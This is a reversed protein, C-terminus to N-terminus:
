RTPRRTSSLFMMLNPVYIFPGEQAKARDAGVIALATLCVGGLLIAHRSLTHHIRPSWYRSGLTEVSALLAPRSSLQKSLMVQKGAHQRTAVSRMVMGTILRVEYYLSTLHRTATDLDGQSRQLRRSHLNTRAVQRREIVSWAPHLIGLKDTGGAQKFESSRAVPRVTTDNGSHASGSPPPWVLLSSSMARYSSSWGERRERRAAHFMYLVVQAYLFYVPLSGGSTCAYRAGAALTLSRYPM